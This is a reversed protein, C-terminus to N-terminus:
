DRDAKKSILPDIPVTAVEIKRTTGLLVLDYEINFLTDALASLLTTM